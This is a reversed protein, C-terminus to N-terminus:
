FRFQLFDFDPEHVALDGNNIVPAKLPLLSPRVPIQAQRMSDQPNLMAWTQLPMTCDVFLGAVRTSGLMFQPEQKLDLAITPKALLPVGQDFSAFKDQASVAGTLMVSAVILVAKPCAAKM